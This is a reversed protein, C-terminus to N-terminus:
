KRKSMIDSLLEDHIEQVRKLVGEVAPRDELSVQDRFGALRRSLARTKLEAHKYFKSNRPKERSHTLADYTTDVSERVEEIAAEETKLDGKDYAERAQDMARDANLLALESRKDPDPEAKVSAIDFALMYM